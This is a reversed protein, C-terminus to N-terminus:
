LICYHLKGIYSEWTMRIGDELSVEADFGFHESALLTKAVSYDKEQVSEGNVIKINKETINEVIAIVDNVKTSIGTGIEYPKKDTKESNLARWIANCVDDVYIFDRSHSGDGYLVFAKDDRAAKLLAHILSTKHESYPGYVNSFRLVVSKAPHDQCIYELAWKSSAYPSEHDGAAGSSAFVVKNTMCEACCNLINIAGVLNVNWYSAAREYSDQVGSLGALNVVYDHRSVQELCDNIDTIDGEVVTATEPMDYPNGVSFDDLVTVEMGKNHLFWCLNKGIFGCGGTVLIKNM